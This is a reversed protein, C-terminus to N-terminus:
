QIETINQETNTTSCKPLAHQTNNNHKALLVMSGDLSKYLADIVGCVRHGHRHAGSGAGIGENGDDTCASQKHYLGFLVCRGGSDDDDNNNDIVNVNHTRM